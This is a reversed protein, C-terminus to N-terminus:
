CRYLKIFTANNSLNILDLRAGIQVRIMGPSGFTLKCYFCYQICLEASYKCQHIVNFNKKALFLLIPMLRICKSHNWCIFYTETNSLNWSWGGEVSDFYHKQLMSCHVQLFIDDCLYLLIVWISRYLHSTLKCCLLINATARLM